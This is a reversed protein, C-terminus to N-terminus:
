LKELILKNEKHDIKFNFNKLFSMGLLGDHIDTGGFEELLIVAEVNNAESNQVKVSKLFLHKAAVQRGDAVTVMIDSKANDLNIGLNKAVERRLMLISAGTDLVLIAEASGNLTTKVLIGKADRTFEVDRPKQDEELRRQKIREESHKKESEMKRRISASEDAGSRVIKKIESKGFKIAGGAVELEVGFDDESKILGKIHRGNNLYIIDAFAMGSFLFIAILILRKVM